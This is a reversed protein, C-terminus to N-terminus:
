GPANRATIAPSQSRQARGLYDAYSALHIGLDDITARVRPDTLTEVEAEREFSYPGAYDISLYGPHCSFETWGDGVEDSLMKQLFEVSVYSLNTVKWEWQAYFGGVFRVSGDDRLPIELPEVLEKFIPMLDERKHAHRHSDVHTPMRGLLRDFEDLQRQFETRVLKIDTLDFDREDEGWVDWHLGISLAPHDRSLAVAEHVARGTVMLSTSTVVGNLHCAIIGRNIGTSLGFDDANFILHKTTSTLLRGLFTV